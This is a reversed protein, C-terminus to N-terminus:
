MALVVSTESKNRKSLLPGFGKWAHVFFTIFLDVSFNCCQFLNCPTGFVVTQKDNDEQYWKILVDSHQPLLRSRCVHPFTRDVFARNGICFCVKMTFPKHLRSQAASLM